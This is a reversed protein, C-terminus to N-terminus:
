PQYINFSNFTTSVLFTNADAVNWQGTIRFLNDVTTNINTGRNNSISNNFSSTFKSVAYIGGTTGISIIRLKIDLEFPTNVAQLNSASVSITDVLSAGLYIRLVLTRPNNTVVLGTLISLSTAGVVLTNAPITLTGIGTSILNGEVISNSLVGETTMSFGGSVIPRTGIYAKAQISLGNVGASLTECFLNTFYGNNFRKITSGVNGVLTTLPEIGAGFLQLAYSIVNSNNVNFRTISNGTSADIVNFNRGSLLTHNVNSNSDITNAFVGTCNINSANIFGTNLQGSISVDGTAVLAKTVITNSTTLNVNTITPSTLSNSVSLTGSNIQGTCAISTGTITSSSVISGATLIGPTTMNNGTITGNASLSGTNLVNTINCSKATISGTSILSGGTISNGATISGIANIDSGSLAGTSSLSGTQIVGLSTLAPTQILATSTIGNTTILGSAILTATNVQGSVYATNSYLTAARLIGSVTAAPATLNVLANVTNSTLTGSVILGSANLNNTRVLNSIVLDAGTLTTSSIISNGTIIGSSAIQAATIQNVAALNGLFTTGASSANLNQTKVQLTTLGTTNYAINSINTVNAVGLSNLDSVDTKFNTASLTGVYPNSIMSTIVSQLGVVDGINLESSILRRKNDTKVPRDPDLNSASISQFVVPLTGYNNLVTSDLFKTSM